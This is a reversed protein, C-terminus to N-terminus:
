QQRSFYKITRYGFIGIAGLLFLILILILFPGLNPLNMNYMKDDITRLPLFLEPREVNKIPILQSQNQDRKNVDSVIGNTAHKGGICAAEMSFIDITEAIYATSLFTNTLPTRYSPRIKASGANNTFKPETTTLKLQDTNQDYAYYFSQWMPSWHTIMSDNLYFGNNEYIYDMFRKSRIMQVWLETQIEDPTCINFPKNFVIGPTYATCVAISWGSQPTSHFHPNHYSKQLQLQLQDQPYPYQLIILDWPTDVLIFSNVDNKFKLVRDFYLQFSVQLHLCTKALIDFRKFYSTYILDPEDDDNNNYKNLNSLFLRSMPGCPLAMVYYDSKIKNIHSRQDDLNIVNVYDIMTKSNNLQVSEASHRLKFTVNCYRELYYKWPEFLAESTPRTTVYNKLKKIIEGYFQMEMGVKIVSKYSAKYRDMGLWPGVQRLVSVNSTGRLSDHWALDDLANLRNDGSTLGYLINLGNKLTDNLSMKDDFNASSYQTLYELVNLNLFNKNKDDLRIHNQNEDPLLPIESMVGFLNHYFGFFVRWCYETAYGNSDRSSKALGGIANEQEYITIKYYIPHNPDKSLKSLEHACTLGGIGGGFISITKIKKERKSELDLNAKYNKKM